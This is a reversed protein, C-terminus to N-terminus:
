DPEHTFRVLREADHRDGRLYVFEGRTGSLVLQGRRRVRTRPTENVIVDLAIESALEPIGVRASMEYGNETARWTARVRLEAAWGEVNRVGVDGSRATPVLLWGGRKTGVRVYLQVGDGNIAAPENDYANEADIAVFHRESRPVDVVIVIEGRERAIAVTCAPRGAEEWTEESRRYHEAGLTFRAPLRHAEGLAAPATEVSPQALSTREVLGGLLVTRPSPGDTVIRWGDATAAHADVRGDTRTVRLEAAVSEISAVTGRWSWVALMAGRPAVARVLLMPARDSGPAGPALAEWYTSQEPAAVWGRLTRRAGDVTREGLVGLPMGGDVVLRATERLFSFGDERDSGGDIAARISPVRLGDAGRARVGHLPLALEHSAASEWELLDVLYDDCVVVSRRVMCGPALEARACIWGAEGLRDDFAVLEGHVRAQSRGDVLPATHALTSRYWHLSEDVYSGTGPDDFWRAAGDSLLLNLRDPHGHGGGSHGYDLAVYVEGEDRRIIGVGQGPLLDSRLPVPTLPPLQPRAFLLARWSLDARTLSTGPLNREVDATSEARGTAGRPSTGDYLRALMGLLRPDESRAFGLECSEAFRPQRVSVAYQSDRRSPYTLDPLLTRFPSAFGEDFRAALDAPLTRGACAAMQVAYWLGRHAFLHYNEGEYWSGDDLLGDRLLAHLGSRGHIAGDVMPERGLLAGAAILAADNWVQRNSMGEDYSAILAVSPEILRERVRGGLATTAPSPIATELLDLAIALQLLWISELYTSFFPRSPGLVNDRNPYELYRQAYRDLLDSAAAICAEDSLLVGLLAAHLTREALWLQYWYPRFRDHLAGTVVAGCRPCVHRLDLPDFRLLTGDAPCRGGARSLLAKERPIEIAGSLVPALELRLGTALAALAGGAVGRRVALADADLLLSM